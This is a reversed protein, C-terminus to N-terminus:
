DETTAYAVEELTTEGQKVRERATARLTQMGDKVAQERIAEEDIEKGTKFILKRIERSFYLAEHIALRGKYGHHCKNCGVAEYFVTSSIDRQSFGLGMPIVPDLNKIPRKCFDCLRRILRQAIIINIAYALLFTELGMKYLRSIASPADNTHLTSFTLHGTNALKIAIDATIRDRIEGVMVVDPDHRLISRIAQEFDMKLGIKLQRAGNIIYEVPDEVTLVNIEPNIIHNIAAMLTTSKGSGTPGTVIIMGQPKSIAKKFFDKATGTFGLKDFDTIVKRDDLVRIVISELKYQIEKAVIPLVSVRYRIMHNDVKRQIFGDQAIEREFRDINKTRDKAVAAMAEPRIGEQVHWLRLKGDIRFHIETTKSDRPIIHIDSARENVAEVIIENVLKIVSAEQAMELLDESGQAEALDVTETGVMEEITDGGVGYYAKILKEIDDRIALVPRINEGTLLRLDDFVSMDFADATAVELAGNHRAVPLLRNRYVLKSPLARIVGPEIVVGSLDVLRLGLHEGLVQLLQREGLLDLRLIAEDLRLGERRQLRLAEDLQAQTILGKRVLVDTIRM